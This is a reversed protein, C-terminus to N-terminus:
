EHSDIVDLSETLVAEASQTGDITVIRDKFEALAHYNQRAQELFQRNEYKEDLSSRDLATDVPVDIYVTLDPERHWYGHVWEIYNKAQLESFFVDDATEEVLSIPQYARTSDAYRDTVVTKGETLAPTIEEVLHERRDAVFLLLDLVPDSTDRLNSRIEGGLATETPEATTVYEPRREAIGQVLTTTGAGDLGEVSILRESM